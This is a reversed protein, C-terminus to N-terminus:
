SSKERMLLHSENQDNYKESIRIKPFSRQIINRLTKFWVQSEDVISGGKFCKQLINSSTLEKYKQLGDADKFNYFECNEKKNSSSSNWKQSFEYLLLNHDSKSRYIKDKRKAYRTLINIDDIEM